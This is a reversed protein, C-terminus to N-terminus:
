RTTLTPNETASKLPSFFFRKEGTEGSPQKHLHLTERQGGARHLGRRRGAEASSKRHSIFGCFFSNGDHQVSLVSSSSGSCRYCHASRRCLEDQGPCPRRRTEGGSIDRGPRHHQRAADSHPSQQRTPLDRVPSCTVYLDISIRRTRLCENLAGNSVKITRESRSYGGWRSRATYFGILSRTRNVADSHSLMDTVLPLLM